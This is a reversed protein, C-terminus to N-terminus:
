DHLLGPPLHIPQILLVALHVCCLSWSSIRVQGRSHRTLDPAIKVHPKPPLPGDGGHQGAVGTHLLLLRLDPLLLKLQLLELHQMIILVLVTVPLLLHNHHNDEPVAQGGRPEPAIIIGRQTCTKDIVLPQYYLPLMAGGEPGVHIM